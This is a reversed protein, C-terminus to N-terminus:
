NFVGLDGPATQRLLLLWAMWDRLMAFSTLQLELASPKLVQM